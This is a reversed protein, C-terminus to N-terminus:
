GGAPFFRMVEVFFPSPQARRVRLWEGKGGPLVCAPSTDPERMLCGDRRMVNLLGAVAWELIMM